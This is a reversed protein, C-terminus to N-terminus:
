ITKVVSEPDALSSNGKSLFAYDICLSAKLLKSKLTVAYLDLQYGAFWVYRISATVLNLSLLSAIHLNIKNQLAPMKGAEVICYPADQERSDKKWFQSAGWISPSRLFQSMLM